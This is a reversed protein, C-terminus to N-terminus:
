IIIQLLINIFHQSGNWHKKPNKTTNKLHKKEFQLTHTRTQRNNNHKNTQQQQQQQQQQQKKKNNKEKKKKKIDTYAGSVSM